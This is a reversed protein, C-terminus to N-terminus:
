AAERAVAAERAGAAEPAVAAEPAGAAEEEKEIQELKKESEQVSKADPESRARKPLALATAPLHALEYGSIAVLRRWIKRPSRFSESWARSAGNKTKWRCGLWATM